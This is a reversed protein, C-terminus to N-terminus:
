GQTWPEVLHQYENATQESARGIGPSSVHRIPIWCCFLFRKIEGLPMFALRLDADAAHVDSTLSCIVMVHGFGPLPLLFGPLKGVFSAFSAVSEVVLSTSMPAPITAKATTISGLVM